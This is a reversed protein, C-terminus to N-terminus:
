SSPVPSGDADHASAQLVEYQQRSMHVCNAIGGAAGRLVFAAIVAYVAAAGVMVAPLGFAIALGSAALGSFPMTGNFAIGNLSMVRGRFDQPTSEQLMAQFMNLQSSFAISSFATAIIAIAPDRTFALVLLALPGVIAGAIIRETRLQTPWWVLAM